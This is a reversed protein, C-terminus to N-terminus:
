PPAASTLTAHRLRGAIVSWPIFVSYLAIWTFFHAQLTLYIGVHLALGAPVYLWRLKPFLICLFFSAQFALVTVQILLIPTHQHSMWWGIAGEKAVGSRALYWQLTYGNAWDFGGRSLKSFVASWYMLAFFWMVLKLPWGALSDTVTLPDSRDRRLLADVSLVRGAPSFTMATLAVIMASPPHHFDGFSYVYASVYCFSAAFVALSVRTVLGLMALIGAVICLNFVMTVTAGSPRGPWLGEAGPSFGFQGNLMQFILLPRYNSDPLAALGDIVSHLDRYAWAYFLTGACAVIRVVALDFCSAPSFWYANWARLM